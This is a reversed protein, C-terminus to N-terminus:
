AQGSMRREFSRIIMTVQPDGIRTEAEKLQAIALDFTETKGTLKFLEWGVEGYAAFVQPTYPYRRIAVTAEEIARELIVIRDEQMIGPTRVARAVMLNIKYRAM